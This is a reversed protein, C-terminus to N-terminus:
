REFEKFAVANNYSPNGADFLMQHEKRPQKCSHFDQIGNRDTQCLLARSLNDIAGCRSRVVTSSSAQPSGGLVRGTFCFRKKGCLILWGEEIARGFDLSITPQGVMCSLLKVALFEYLRNQVSELLHSFEVPRLNNLEHVIHGLNLSNGEFPM